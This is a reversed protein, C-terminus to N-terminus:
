DDDLFLVEEEASPLDGLSGFIADPQSPSAARAKEKQVARQKEEDALQSKIESIAHGGPATDEDNAKFSSSRKPPTSPSPARLVTPDFTEEPSADAAPRAPALDRLDPQRVRTTPVDVESDAGAAVQSTPSPATRDGSAPGGRSGSLKAPGTKFTPAEFEDAPAAPAGSSPRLAQAPTTRLAKTLPATPEGLAFGRSGPEAADPMPRRGMPETVPTSSPLQGRLAAGPARADRPATAPPAAGGSKRGAPGAKAPLDFEVTAMAEHEEFGADADNGGRAGGPRADRGADVDFHDLAPPGEDSVGSKAGTVLHMSTLQDRLVATERRLQEVKKREDVLESQLAARAKSVADDGARRADEAQKRADRLQSELRSAREDADKKAKAIREEAANEALALNEEATGAAEKARALEELLQAQQQTVVLGWQALLLLEIRELFANEDPPIPVYTELGRALASVIMGSKAPDDMLVVAGAQRDQRAARGLEVGLMDGLELEVILVHCPAMRLRAQAEGGRSFAEAIFGRAQLFPLLRSVKPGVLVLRFGGPHIRV